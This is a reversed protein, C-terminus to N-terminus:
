DLYDPIAGHDLLLAIIHPDIGYGHAIYLPNGDNPDAGYRLLLRVMDVSNTGIAVHLANTHSGDTKDIDAGMDLLLKAADYHGANVAYYLPFSESM